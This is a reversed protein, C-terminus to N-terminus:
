FQKVPINQAESTKKTARLMPATSKGQKKIM